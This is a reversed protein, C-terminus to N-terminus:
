TVSVTVTNVSDYSNSSHGDKAWVGIYYSGVPAGTTDWDYTATTAYGRLLTWTPATSARLWFAYEPGAGNCGTAVATATINHPGGSTSHAITPPAATVTVNPCTAPVVTVQTSNV